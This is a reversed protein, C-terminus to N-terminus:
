VIWETITQFSSFPSIYHIINPTPM